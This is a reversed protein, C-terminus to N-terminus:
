IRLDVRIRRGRERAPLRITLTREAADHRWAEEPLARRNLRVRRPTEAFDHWLLTLQRPAEVQFAGRAAGLVFRYRDGRRRWSMDGRATEGQQYGLSQGDDEWLTFAGAEASGPYIHVVLSDSSGWGAPRGPARMPVIAGARIFLPLRDLPAEYELLRGGAHRRAPEHFDLWEGAPLYVSRARAGRVVMPAVLLEEGLLYQDPFRHDGRIIRRGELRARHAYSYIYPFLRQKLHAYRRFCELARPSVRWPLNATPADPEAFVITIPNLLSFQMWRIYLSDNSPANGFDSFGAAPHALLPAEYTTLLPNAVMTVQEAFAGMAGRQFDPYGPQSWAVAAEGTWPIPYRRLRQDHLHRLGVLAFGRRAGERQALAHATAVFSLDAEGDLRLFDLGQEFFPRMLESWYEAAAENEFDVEGVLSQGSADHRAEVPRFPPARFYDRALFDEFVAENGDQLISNWVWLGSKVGRADLARWLAGPDPFAATDGRFNLYGNPGLGQNQHNWFWSDIWYANIPLDLALMSDVRALTEEQDTYGGHIVGFAWAPPLALEVTDRQFAYGQPTLGPSACLWFKDLLIRAASDGDAEVVLYYASFDPIDFWNKATDAPMWELARTPKVLVRLSDVRSLSHAKVPTLSVKLERRASTDYENLAALAWLYYRGPMPARLELHIRNGTAPVEESELLAVGTHYDVREWGSYQESDEAELAIRHPEGRGACGQGLSYALLSVWLLSIRGKIM